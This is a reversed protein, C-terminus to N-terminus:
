DFCPTDSILLRMLSARRVYNIRSDPKVKRIDPYAKSVPTSPQCHYCYLFIRNTEKLRLFNILDLVSIM